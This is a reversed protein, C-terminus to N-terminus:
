LNKADPGSQGGADDNRLVWGRLEFNLALDSQELGLMLQETEGFYHLLVDAQDRSLTALEVNAVVALEGLRHRMEVWDSLGNLPVVIRLKNQRGFRLMNAQKWGGEVQALVRKVARALLDQRSDSPAGRLLESTTREAAVGVRHVTLQLIAGEVPGRVRRKETLGTATGDASEAGDAGGAAGGEDDPNGDLLPPPEALQLYASAVVIEETGYRGALRMLAERSPALAEGPRIAAMDMVDGLPLILPVLGSNAPRALWAARWDGPELWITAGDGTDFVPVVLVEKSRTEAFRIKRQRLLKRVSFKNFDFTLNARYRTSSVLEKDIIYGDILPEIQIADLVPMLVQDELLVLRRLLRDFAAHQGKALAVARAEVASTSSADVAVDRVTYVSDARVAAPAMMAGLAIIIALVVSRGLIRPQIMVSHGNKFYTAM